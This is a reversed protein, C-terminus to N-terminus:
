GMQGPALRFVGEREWIFERLRAAVSDPHLDFVVTLHHRAHEVGLHDCNASLRSSCRASSATAIGCTSRAAVFFISPLRLPPKLRPLWTLSQFERAWNERKIGGFLVRVRPALGVDHDDWPGDPAACIGAFVLLCSFVGHM